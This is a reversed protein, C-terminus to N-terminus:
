RKWENWDSRISSKERWEEKLYNLLSNTCVYGNGRLSDCHRIEKLQFCVAVCTWHTKSANTPVFIEDLSLMDKNVVSNSWRRVNSCNHGSKSLLKEMHHSRFIFAVALVENKTEKRWAHHTHIQLKTM